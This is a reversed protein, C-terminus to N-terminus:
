VAVPLMPVTLAVLLLVLADFETAVAEMESKKSPPPPSPTESSRLPSLVSRRPSIKAAVPTRPASTRKSLMAVYETPTLALLTCAPSAVAKADRFCDTEAAKFLM